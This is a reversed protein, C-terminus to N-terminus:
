FYMGGGEIDTTRLVLTDGEITRNLPSPNCGGKVENIRASPFRQGCNNCVMENGEQRYGKKAQYCVDCADFAARIIGDSSKLVFFNIMRGGSKYSYYHAYGDSVEAVPIKVAGNSAKVSKFGGEAETSSFMTFGVVAAIMIGVIVGVITGKGSSQDKKNSSADKVFQEKKNKKGM